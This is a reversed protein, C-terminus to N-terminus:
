QAWSGRRVATGTGATESAMNPHQRAWEKVYLRLARWRMCTEEKIDADTKDEGLRIYGRTAPLHDDQRLEAVPIHSIKSLDEDFMRGITPYGLSLYNYVQTVFSDGFDEEIAAEVALKQDICAFDPNSPPPTPPLLYRAPTPAPSPPYDTKIEPTLIGTPGRPPTLGSKACWGGWLGGPSPSRSNAGSNHKDSCYLSPRTSPVNSGCWLGEGREAAQCQESLYITAIKVADCGQTSDFHAPEPSACRPFVIDDGLMPPRAGKQMLELVSDQQTEGLLEQAKPENLLAAPNGWCQPKPELTNSQAELRKKEEHQKDLREWHRRMELMDHNTESVSSERRPKVYTKELDEDDADRDIFHDVHEHEDDNPFAALAQERLQKEAAKAALELLYGSFEEDASERTQVTWTSSRRHRSPIRYLM